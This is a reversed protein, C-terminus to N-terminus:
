IGTSRRSQRPLRNLKKWWEWPSGIRSSRRCLRGDVFSQAVAADVYQYRGCPKVDSPQRCAPARRACIRDKGSEGSEVKIRAADFGKLGPPEAKTEPSTPYNSSLQSLRVKKALPRVHSPGKPRFGREEYPPLSARSTPRGRRPATSLATPCPDFCDTITGLARPLRRAGFIVIYSRCRSFRSAGFDSSALRAVSERAPVALARRDWAWSLVSSALYSRNMSEFFLLVDDPLRHKNLSPQQSHTTNFPVFSCSYAYHCYSCYANDNWSSHERRPALGPEGAFNSGFYQASSLARFTHSPALKRCSRLVFPFRRVARAV